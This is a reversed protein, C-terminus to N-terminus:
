NDVLVEHKLSGSNTSQLDRLWNKTTEVIIMMMLRMLPMAMKLELFASYPDLISGNATHPTEILLSASDGLFRRRFKFASIQKEDAARLSTFTLIQDM